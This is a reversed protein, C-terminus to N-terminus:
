KLTQGPEAQRQAESFVGYNLLLQDIMNEEIALHSMRKPEIGADFALAAVRGQGTRLTKPETKAIPDQYATDPDIIEWGAKRLAIILDDIYLAALDNEHLLLTHAPSRGLKEQALNEYFNVAGILIEVYAKKLAEMDIQKGNAVARKWESQIYWDYNDVTVYGNMLNREALAKRMADRKGLERGEDLFPFRFWPRRNEFGRLLEEAKDVGALYEALETKHLWPHQDTHNAILHGAKAYRHIRERNGKKDIHKTTVFFVVPPSNVSNLSDILEAAREDGTFITGKGRPADDFSISIQKAYSSLTIGYFLLLITGLKIALKM